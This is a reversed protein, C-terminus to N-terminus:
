EWEERLKRQHNVANEKFPKSNQLFKTFPENLIEIVIKGELETFVLIDGEGINLKERIEKPLVVQGKKSVKSTIM